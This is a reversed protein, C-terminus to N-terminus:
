AVLKAMEEALTWLARNLRVNESVGTVQRTTMKGGNRNFGRLGGQMINEQVRNFTRWLDAGRDDARRVRNLQQPEIPINDEPDYRLQLAANAFANQQGTTLQLSQMLDKSAEVQEFEDVIRYAGEIVNGLVDGSHRVRFDEVTDGCILGNHCVFRFCGALMQYSSTGDHSNVLIIENATDGNIQGERRFRLMHKTFEAKGEIRSRAQCAMFPMFGEKRLGNVVDSTPIYAYRASRSDHPMEAFVSPAARLIQEDSLPSDSRVLGSINKFSTALTNMFLELTLFPM